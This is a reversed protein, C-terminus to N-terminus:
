FIQYLSEYIKAIKPAYFHQEVFSQGKKGIERREEPHLILYELCEQLSSVSGPEMIKANKGDEIGQYLDPYRSCISAAGVSLAEMSSMPLSISEAGKPYQLPMAFIDCAIMYQIVKDTAPLLTVAQVVNNHEALFEQIEPLLSGDGTLLLRINDHKLVLNKFAKLLTMQGKWEILRAGCYILVQDPSIGLSKRVQERDTNRMIEQMLPVDIGNYITCSRYPFSRVPELLLHSVPFFERELNETYCVTLRNLPRVLKCALKLKWTMFGHPNMEHAIIARVGALRGALTGHLIADPLICHLIRPQEQKIKKYVLKFTHIKSAYSEQLCFLKVGRDMFYKQFTKKSSGEHNKLYVVEIDFLDHDIYKIIDGMIRQAGGVTIDNILYMVKIKKKKEVAQPGQQSSHSSM